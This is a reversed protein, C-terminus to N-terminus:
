QNDNNYTRSDLLSSYVSILTYKGLYGKTLISIKQIRTPIMQYTVQFPETWFDPLIVCYRV